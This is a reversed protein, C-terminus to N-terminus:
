WTWSGQLGDAGSVLMTIASGLVAAGGTSLDSIGWHSLLLLCPIHNTPSEVFRNRVRSIMPSTLDRGLLISSNLASVQCWLSFPSNLM